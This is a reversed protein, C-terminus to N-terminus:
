KKKHHNLLLNKQQPHYNAHCVNCLTIWNDEDFRLEESDKYQIIHHAMLHEKNWCEQCTYNDRKKIIKWRSKLKSLKWRRHDYWKWRLNDKWLRHNNPRQIACEYSCYKAIWDRSKKYTFEKWCIECLKKIKTIRATSSCKRTCYKKRSVACFTNWCWPCIRLLKKTKYRAMCKRSCCAHDCKVHCKMRYFGKWCNVCILNLWTPM